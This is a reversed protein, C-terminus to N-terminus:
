NFYKESRWSQLNYSKALPIVHEKLIMSTADAFNDTVGLKKFKNENKGKKFNNLKEFFEKLLKQSDKNELFITLRM